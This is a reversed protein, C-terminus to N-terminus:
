LHLYTCFVTGFLAITFVVPWCVCGCVQESIKNKPVLELGINMEPYIKRFEDWRFLMRFFVYSPAFFSLPKLGSPRAKM